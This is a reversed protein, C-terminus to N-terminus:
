TEWEFLHSYNEWDNIITPRKCKDITAYTM